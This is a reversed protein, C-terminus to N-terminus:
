FDDIETAFQGLKQTIFAVGVIGKAAAHCLSRLLHLIQEVIEDGVIAAGSLFFNFANGSKSLLFFTEIELHLRPIEAIIGLFEVLLEVIIIGILQTGVEFQGLDFLSDKAQGSTEIAYGELAVLFDRNEIGINFGVFHEIGVATEEGNEIEIEEGSGVFLTTSPHRAVEVLFALLAGGNFSRCLIRYTRMDADRGIEGLGRAIGGGQERKAFHFGEKVFEAM